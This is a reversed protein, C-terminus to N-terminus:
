LYKRYRSVKRPRLDITPGPFHKWEELLRILKNGSRVIESHRINALGFDIVRVIGGLVCVNRPLIDNPNIQKTVLFRKIFQAQSRWNDPVPAGEELSPGCYTMYIILNRPDAAVLQPFHPNGYVRKLANIENKWFVFGSMNAPLHKAVLFNDLLYVGKSYINQSVFKKIVRKKSIYIIRKQNNWRLMKKMEQAMIQQPHPMSQTRIGSDVAEMDTLERENNIPFVKEVCTYACIILLNVVSSRSLTISSSLFGSFM